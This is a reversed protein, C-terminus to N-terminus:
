KRRARAGKKVEKKPTEKADKSEQRKTGYRKLTCKIKEDAMDTVDEFLGLGDEVLELVFDSLNKRNKKAVGSLKSYLEETVPTRVIRTSSM